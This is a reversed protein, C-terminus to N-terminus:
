TTRRRRKAEYMAADARAMTDALSEDGRRAVSGMSFGCPASSRDADMREVLRELVGEGAQPILILFEDGGPRLLSDASRVRESLFRAMGRLVEDGQEHGLSDNIGKFDDLDVAVVGWPQDRYRGEFEDLFRRNLCGTLPDRLSQERLVETQELQETIDVATGIINEGLDAEPPMRSIVRWRRDRGKADRVTLVSEDFRSEKVRRLYDAQATEGDNGLFDSLALGELQEPSQGLALAMSPNAQLIRGSADCVFVYAASLRMVEQMQARSARLRDYAQGLARKSRQNHLFFAALVAIALGSAVVLAITLRNTRELALQRERSRASETELMRIEADQKIRELRLEYEAAASNREQADLTTELALLREVKPQVESLPAGLQLQLPIVQRLVRREERDVGLRAFHAYALDFERSAERLRRRQLEGHGLAERALAETYTNDIAEALALVRKAKAEHAAFDGTSRALRSGELLVDALLKPDDVRELRSEARELAARAEDIQGLETHSRALNRLLRVQMALGLDGPLQALGKEAYEVSAGFKGIYQSLSSYNLYIDASMEPSHTDRLVWEAEALLAESLSYDRTRSRGLAEAVLGRAQVIPDGAVEGANAAAAGARIQCDWDALVRCANAEALHLLATTRLDDAQKAADMAAPIAELAASPSQLALRELPHRPLSDISGEVPPGPDAAATSLPAPPAASAAGGLVVAFLVALGPRRTRRQDM